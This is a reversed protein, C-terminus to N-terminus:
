CGFHPLPKNRWWEIGSGRTGQTLKSAKGIILLQKM